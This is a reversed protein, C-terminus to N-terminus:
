CIAIGIVTWNCKNARINLHVLGAEAGAEDGTTLTPADNGETSKGIVKPDCSVDPSSVLCFSLASTAAMLTVQLV